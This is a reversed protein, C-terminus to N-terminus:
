DLSGAATRPERPYIRFSMDSMRIELTFDNKYNEDFLRHLYDIMIHRSQKHTDFNENTPINHWGGTKAAYEIAAILLVTTKGVGRTGGVLWKISALHFKQEDTLEIM